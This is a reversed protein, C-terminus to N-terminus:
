LPLEFIQSQYYLEFEEKLVAKISKYKSVTTIFQIQRLSSQQAHCPKTTACKHGSHRNLNNCRDSNFGQLKNSLISYLEHMCMYTM